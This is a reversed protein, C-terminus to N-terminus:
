LEKLNKGNNELFNILLEFIPCLRDRFKLIQLQPFTVYQLKEFDKYHYYSKFLFELEQLNSFKTIFSLSFSTKDIFYLSLKILTNQFKTMLPPINEVYYYSNCHVRIIFHKLNKQAFILDALGNSINDHFDIMLSSLNHCIQSLQHFIESNNNSRCCLESLNKLCDKAGPYSAFNANQYQLFTLSKLSSIQNMLM